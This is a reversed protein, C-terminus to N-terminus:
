IMSGAKLSRNICRRESDFLWGWKNFYRVANICHIARFRFSSYSQRRYGHTITALPLYVTSYHRHIRRTLDIDELYMFFREDFLGARQLASLRLLMFSGQHYPVDFPQSHDLHRLEYRARRRPFAWHPLFSRLILDFPTPLMRVTYQMQGDSGVIRPQVAGVHPHSDMYATLPAISTPPFTVDSNMVLHYAEGRALSLRLAINHGAGYGRNPAPIYEVEPYRACLSSIYSLRSNDVVYVRQVGASILACLVTTLEAPDTHYTVISAALTSTM